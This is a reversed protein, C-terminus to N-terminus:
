RRPQQQRKKAAMARKRARERERKKRQKERIVLLVIFAIIIVLIVALIIIIVPKVQKGSKEPTKETADETVSETETENEPVPNGKLVTYNTRYSYNCNNCKYETYGYETESSEVVKSVMDPEDCSHPLLTLYTEEYEDYFDEEFLENRVFNDGVFSDDNEFNWNMIEGIFAECYARRDENDEYFTITGTVSNGTMAGYHEEGDQYQIYMGVLGGNHVYGHDSDYGQIWIANDKLDIYGAAYAGGMFQEEKYEVDKDICILTVNATTKEILGYGFGAIGGVGFSKADTSVKITGEIQCNTVTSGEMMGAIGGAFCPNATEVSIDTGLFKLNSVTANKLVNFFGSFYTDYKVMNGDYTDARTGGCGNVKLNLIAHGNGDLTGQFDIPTWIQSSCDIDAMLVFSGDPNQSLKFLDEYTYLEVPDDAKVIKAPALSAFLVTLIVAAALLLNRKKTKVMKGEKRLQRCPGAERDDM